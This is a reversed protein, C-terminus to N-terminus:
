AILPVNFASPDIVSLGPAAHAAGFWCVGVTGDVGGGWGGGGGGGGEGGEGGEVGMVEAVGVGSVGRPNPRDGRM